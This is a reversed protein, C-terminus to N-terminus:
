KGFLGRLFFTLNAPREALRRMFYPYWHTGYPVYIRVQFGDRLLKEQLERRIGYLFQFEFLDKSIGLSEANQIVHTIRRLDHTAFAALPGIRGNPKPMKHSTQSTAQLIKLALADYNKDVDKKDQYAVAVPEKYAGKCLRVRTGQEMLRDIDDGSRYLYSQIVIGVNAYGTQHLKALVDLTAQTLSSDEMDIRVMNGMQQAQYIIGTVNEICRASDLTLGFQSLKISVNSDLNDRHITDLMRIVEQTAEQAQEWDSTNEGLHDLTVRFGAQNLTKMVAVAEEITEGAVFRGAIRRALSWRTVITQAWKAKSLYLLTSQIM